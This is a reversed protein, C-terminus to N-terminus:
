RIKKEEKDEPFEHENGDKEEDANPSARPADVGRDFKQDEGQGSANEHKHADDRYVASAAGQVELGKGECFGAKLGLLLGPEERGKQGGEGELYGHERHMGPERVSM